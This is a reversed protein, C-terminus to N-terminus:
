IRESQRWNERIIESKRPNKYERTNKRLRESRRPNERRRELKVSKTPNWLFRQSEKPSM